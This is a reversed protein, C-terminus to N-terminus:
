RNGRPLGAAELKAIRDLLRAGIDDRDAALGALTADISAGDTAIALGADIRPDAEMVPTTGTHAAIAAALRSREEEPLDVAHAVRWTGRPLAHQATELARAIWAKRPEPDCWRSALAAPLLSLATAALAKNRQQTAARQRTEFHATAAAIRERTLHREADFARRMARRAETHAERRLADAQRRAAELIERRREACASEVLEILARENREVSM